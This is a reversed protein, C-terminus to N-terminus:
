SACELSPFVTNQQMRQAGSPFESMLPSLYGRPESSCICAPQGGVQSCRSCTEHKERKVIKFTTRLDSSCVYSAYAQQDSRRSPRPAQHLSGDGLSEDVKRTSFVVAAGAACGIAATAVMKACCFHHLIAPDFRQGVPQLGTARGASSIGRASKCRLVRHSAPEKCLLSASFGSVPLLDPPDLLIQVESRM